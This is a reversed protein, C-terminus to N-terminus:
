DETLDIVPVSDDPRRKKTSPGKTVVVAEDDDDAEDDDVWARKEKKVRIMDEQKAQLRLQLQRVEDPTLAAPDRDELPVPEPDQEIIGEIQLDKRSRYKFKFTAFPNPGYPNSTNVTGVAGPVLM